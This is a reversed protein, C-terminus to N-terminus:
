PCPRGGSGIGYEFGGPLALPAPRAARNFVVGENRGPGVALATEAAGGGNAGPQVLGLCGWVTYPYGITGRSARPRLFSWTEDALGLPHLSADFPRAVGVLGLFPRADLVKLDGQFEFRGHGRGDAQEDEAMAHLGVSCGRSARQVSFTGATPLVATRPKRRCGRDLAM